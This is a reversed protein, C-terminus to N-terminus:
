PQSLTSACWQKKLLQSQRWRSTNFYLHLRLHAATSKEPRLPHKKQTNQQNKKPPACLWQLHTQRHSLVAIGLSMNLRVAMGAVCVNKLFQIQYWDTFLSPGVVYRVIVAWCCCYLAKPKKKNQTIQMSYKHIHGVSVQSRSNLIIKICLHASPSTTHWTPNLGLLSFWRLNKLVRSAWHM